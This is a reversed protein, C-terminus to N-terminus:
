PVADISPEHRESTSEIATRHEEEIRRLQDFLEDATELMASIRAMIRKGADSLGPTSKYQLKHDVAAWAHALVTRVQIEVPVRAFREWEPLSARRLSLTCVLHYSRYGFRDNSPPSRRDSSNAEDVTFERRIIQVVNDIDADYFMITRLGVKDTVQTDPHQYGKRQIKERFEDIGKCRSEIQHYQMEDRDLLARILGELQIRFAELGPREALYRTVAQDIEDDSLSVTTPHEEGADM